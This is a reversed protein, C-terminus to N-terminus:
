YGHPSSLKPNKTSQLATDITQLLASPLETLLPVAWAQPHQAWLKVADKETCLVDGWAPNLTLGRVDAHDPLAQTHALQLGQARLMDFFVEPKAIGALAQVPTSGWSQLSRQTGDAQRAFTALERRVAFAGPPTQGSTQVV